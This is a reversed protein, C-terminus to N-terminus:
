KQFFKVKEKSFNVSINAYYKIDNIRESQIQYDKLLNSIKIDQFQQFKIVNM